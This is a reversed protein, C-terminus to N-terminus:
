LRKRNNQRRKLRALKNQAEAETMIAGPLMDDFGSWIAKLFSFRIGIDPLRQREPTIPAM